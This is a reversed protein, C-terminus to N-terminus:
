PHEDFFDLVVQASTNVSHGIAGMSVLEAGAATAFAQVEAPLVTPDDTSYWMKIPIVGNFVSAFEVPNHTPRAAQWAANGGYAAEIEAQYGGRNTSRMIEINPPGINLAIAKVSSLHARAWNCVTIAGGSGGILYVGGAKAGLEGQLYTKGSDMFALSADNGWAYGAYGGSFIAGKAALDYTYGPNLLEIGTADGHGHAYLIGPQSADPKYFRSALAAFTDGANTGWRSWM